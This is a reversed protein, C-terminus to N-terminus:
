KSHIANSQLADKEMFLEGRGGIKSGPRRSCPSLSLTTPNANNHRNGVDAFVM